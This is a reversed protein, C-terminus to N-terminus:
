QHVGTLGCDDASIDEFNERGTDRFNPVLSSDLDSSKMPEVRGKRPTSELEHKPESIVIQHEEPVLELEPLEVTIAELITITHNEDELAKIPSM